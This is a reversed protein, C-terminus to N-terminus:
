GAQDSRIPPVPKGMLSGGFRVPNSGADTGRVGQPIRVWSRSILLRKSSVVSSFPCPEPQTFRVGVTLALTERVVMICFRFTFNVLADPLAVVCKRVASWSQVRLPFRVGSSNPTFWDNQWQVVRAHAVQKLTHCM